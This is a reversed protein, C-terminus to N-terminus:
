RNRLVPASRLRKKLSRPRKKVDNTTMVFEPAKPANQERVFANQPEPPPSLMEPRVIRIEPATHMRNLRPKRPRPAQVARDLSSPVGRHRGIIMVLCMMVRSATLFVTSFSSVVGPYGLSLGVTGYASVIEYVLKFISFSPDIELRWSEILAIIVTCIFLWMTDTLMFHLDGLFRALRFSIHRKSYREQELRQITELQMKASTRLSYRVPIAALYMYVVEVLQVVPSVLAIM